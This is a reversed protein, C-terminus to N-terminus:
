VVPLDFPPIPEGNIVANPNGGVYRVRTWVDASNTTVTLVGNSGLAVNFTGQWFPGADMVQFGVKGIAAPSSSPRNSAVLVTADPAGPQSAPGM